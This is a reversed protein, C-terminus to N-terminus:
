IKIVVNGLLRKCGEENLAKFILEMPLHLKDMISTKYYVFSKKCLGSDIFYDLRYWSSNYAMLQLRIISNNICYCISLVGFKM